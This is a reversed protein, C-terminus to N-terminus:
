TCVSLGNINITSLAPLIDEMEKNHMGEGQRPRAERDQLHVDGRDQLTTREARRLRKQAARLVAHPLHRVGGCRWDPLGARRRGHRYTLSGFPETLM